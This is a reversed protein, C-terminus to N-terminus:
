FQTLVRQRPTKSGLKYAFHLTPPEAKEEEKKEKGKKEDKKKDDAEAAKAAIQPNIILEM